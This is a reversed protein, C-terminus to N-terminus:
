LANFAEAKVKVTIATSENNTINFVCNGSDESIVVDTDILQGLFSFENQEMVPDAWLASMKALRVM